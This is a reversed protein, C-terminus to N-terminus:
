KARSRHNTSIGCNRTEVGLNELIACSGEAERLKALKAGERYFEERDVDKPQPRLWRQAHKTSIGCNGTEVGLNELIACSGEAERLKAGKAGERYFEERNIEEARGL